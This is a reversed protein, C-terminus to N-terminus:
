GVDLTLQERAIIGAALGELHMEVAVILQWEQGTLLVFGRALLEEVDVVISLEDRYAVLVPLDYEALLLRGAREIDPGFRKHAPPQGLQEIQARVRVLPRIDRRIGVVVPRQLPREQKNRCLREHLLEDLRELVERRSLLRRAEANILHHLLQ